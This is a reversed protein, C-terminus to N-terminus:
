RDPVLSEILEDFEEEAAAVTNAPGTFKFFVSGQPAEVIAGLLRFKEKKGQSQMMPGGPALFTGAVKVLSVKLSGVEKTSREPKDPNEFQGVWRAINAEVDGGQDGGFYFVACEGGEVDGHAAPVTYTAARM